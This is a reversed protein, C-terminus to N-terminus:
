VTVIESPTEARRSRFGHGQSIGEEEETSEVTTQKCVKLKGLGRCNCWAQGLVWGRKLAGNRRLRFPAWRMEQAPGALAWGRRKARPGLKAGRPSRCTDQAARLVFVSSGIFTAMETFPVDVREM